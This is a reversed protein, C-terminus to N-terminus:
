NSYTITMEFIVVSPKASASDSAISLVNTPTDFEYELTAATDATVTSTMKIGTNKSVTNVVMNTSTEWGAVKFSVKSIAISTDFNLTLSGVLKTTGLKLVDCNVWATEGSGGNAGAYVKAIDTVSTPMVSSDTSKFVGLIADSTSLTAASTKDSGLAGTFTYSVTTEESPTTSPEIVTVAVTTTIESNEDSTITINAKGTSVGTVKGNEDVTAISEADSTYILKKNDANSPRCFANM